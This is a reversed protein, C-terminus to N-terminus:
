VAELVYGLGRLTVIRVGKGDLRKRLRHIVVEVAELMVDDKDGFVRDLLQQKTLPTNCHRILAALLTSERPTLALLEDRLAFQRTDPYYALPGCTISPREQGKARRILAALRAELEALAFPKSLFDVAGMALADLTVEAGRETMSSVMVVPMPRLRM